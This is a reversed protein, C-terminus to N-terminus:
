GMSLFSVCKAEHGLYIISQSVLIRFINFNVNKASVNKANKLM